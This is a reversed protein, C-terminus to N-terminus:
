YIGEYNQLSEVQETLYQYFENGIGKIVSQFLAEKLKTPEKKLNKIWIM